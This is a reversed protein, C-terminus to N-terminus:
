ASATLAGVKGAICDLLERDSDCFSEVGERELKDTVAPL